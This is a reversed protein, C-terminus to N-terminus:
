VYERKVFGGMYKFHKKGVVRNRSTIFSSESSRIAVSDNSFILLKGIVLEYDTGQDVEVVVEDGIFVISGDFALFGHGREDFKLPTNM